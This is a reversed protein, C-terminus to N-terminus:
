LNFYNKKFLDCYLRPLIKIGLIVNENDYRLFKFKSFEFGDLYEFWFDSEETKIFSRNELM